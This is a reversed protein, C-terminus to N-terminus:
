RVAEFAMAGWSNTLWVDEGLSRTRLEVGEFIPDTKEGIRREKIETFGALEFTKRLTAPDYIFQHGWERMAKNLVYAPMVPTDPWGFLRRNAEIFKRAEVDTGNNLLYFLKALNPTVVRIKGGPGLVRHCEKLMKLGGEWPLHEILHEAFIYHVSGSPFPYDSTADLYVGNAKPEIDTNLWGGVYNEGAGLQLKRISHGEFYERITRPDTVRQHYLVILDDRYEHLKAAAVVAVALVLVIRLRMTKDLGSLRM